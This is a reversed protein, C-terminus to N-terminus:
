PTEKLRKKLDEDHEEWFNEIARAARIFEDELSSLEDSFCDGELDEAWETVISALVLEERTFNMGKVSFAIEHGIQSTLSIEKYLQSKRRHSTKHGHTTFSFQVKFVNEESM